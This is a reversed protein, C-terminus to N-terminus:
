GPLYFSTKLIFILIYIIRKNNKILKDKLIKFKYYSQRYIFSFSIVFQIKMCLKFLFKNSRMGGRLAGGPLLLLVKIIGIKYFAGRGRRDRDREQALKQRKYITPKISACSYGLLPLHKPSV